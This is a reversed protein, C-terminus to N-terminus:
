GENLETITSDLLDLFEYIHFDKSFMPNDRLDKALLGFMDMEGVFEIAFGETDGFHEEIVEAIIEEFDESKVSFFQFITDYGKGDVVICSFNSKNIDENDPITLSFNQNWDPTM